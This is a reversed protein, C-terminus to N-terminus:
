IMSQNIPQNADWFNALKFEKALWMGLTGPSRASSTNM